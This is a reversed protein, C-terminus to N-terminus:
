KHHLHKHHRNQKHTLESEIKIGLNILQRTMPAYSLVLTGCKQCYIEKTPYEQILKSKCFPCKTKHNQPLYKILNLM